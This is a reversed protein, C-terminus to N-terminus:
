IVENGEHDEIWFSGESRIIKYYEHFDGDGCESEKKCNFCYLVPYVGRGDDVYYGTLKFHQDKGIEACESCDSDTIHALVEALDPDYIKKECM